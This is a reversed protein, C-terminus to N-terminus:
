FIFLDCLHEGLARTRHRAFLLGFTEHRARVVVLDALAHGLRTLRDLDVCERQGREAADAIDARQQLLCLLADGEIETFERVDHAREVRHAVDFIEEAVELLLRWDELAPRVADLDEALELAVEVVRDVVVPMQAIRCADLQAADARLEATRLAADLLADAGDQVALIVLFIELIRDDRHAIVAVDDRDFRLVAM